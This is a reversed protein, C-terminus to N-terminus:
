RVQKSETVAAPGNPNPGPVNEITKGEELLFVSAVEVADQTVRMLIVQLRGEFPPNKAEEEPSNQNTASNDACNNVQPAVRPGQRPFM